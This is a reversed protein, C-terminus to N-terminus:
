LHNRRGVYRADDPNKGFKSSGYDKRGVRRWPFAEDPHQAYFTWVDFDKVGYRGDVYHVAASQCLTVCLLRNAYLQQWRPHRSFFEARDERSLLALRELDSEEIKAFSRESEEMSAEAEIILERSATWTLTTRLWGSPRESRDALASAVNNLSDAFIRRRTM